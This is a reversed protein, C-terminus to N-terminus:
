ISEVFKHKLFKMELKSRGKVELNLMALYKRSKERFKRRGIRVKQAHVVKNKWNYLEHSM